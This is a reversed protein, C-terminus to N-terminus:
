SGDAFSTVDAGGVPNGTLLKGDLSLTQTSGDREIEATLVSAEALMQLTALAESADSVPDGNIRTLVDGARLGLRSFPLSIRGPYLVLGHLESGVFVPSPRLYLTLADDSRTDEAEQPQGGGVTLLRDTTRATPHLDEQLYLRTSVGDRELVV